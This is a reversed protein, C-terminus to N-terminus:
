LVRHFLNEWEKRKISEPKLCKKLHFFVEPHFLTTLLICSIRWRVVQHSRFVSEVEYLGLIRLSCSSFYLSTQKDSFKIDKNLNILRQKAQTKREYVQPNSKTGIWEITILRVNNIFCRCKNAKNVIMVDYLDHGQLNAVMPGFNNLLRFRFLPVAFNKPCSQCLVWARVEASKLILFASLKPSVEKSVHNGYFSLKVGGSLQYVFSKFYIKPFTM